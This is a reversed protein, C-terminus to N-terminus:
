DTFRNFYYDIYSKVGTEKITYNIRIITPATIATTMVSSVGGDEETNYEPIVSSLTVTKKNKITKWTMDTDEEDVYYGVQISDRKYGSNMNVTLKEKSLTTVYNKSGLKDEDTSLEYKGFTIKKIPAYQSSYFNVAYTVGDVEFSFKSSKNNKASYFSYRYEYYDSDPNKKLYTKRFKLGGTATINKLKYSTADTIKIRISDNYFRSTKINIVTNDAYKTYEKSSNDTKYTISVAAEAKVSFVSSGMIAFFAAVFLASLIGKISFLGKKM